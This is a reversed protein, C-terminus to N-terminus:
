TPNIARIHRTAALWSGGLGLASAAALVLVATHLDLGSLRFESGYLAALRAVPAALAAIAIEVLLLALIAGGLGYWLGSYLFPRRAFGDTGGVLKLVEIEARRNLVDLRITNGVILAVGLGLLGGALLAVRRLLALMALLRKVWGTDLQVSDVDAIAAIANKLNQTGLATSAGVAPTVILTNPLPNDKLADLAAGFGSYQRFQALAEAATIIRVAGVDDRAEIQRAIQQTRVDSSTKALYVTLNFAENWGSTAARANQLLVQLTLPLAIAIAIVAMTMLTALPAAAIRGLSGILTQAHRSFYAGVNM